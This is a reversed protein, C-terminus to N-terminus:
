RSIEIVSEVGLRRGTLATVADGAPISLVKTTTRDVVITHM